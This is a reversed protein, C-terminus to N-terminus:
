EEIEPNAAMIAEAVQWLGPLFQEVQAGRQRLDAFSLIGLDGLLQRYAAGFREGLEPPADHYLVNMCRSYTAVIWFVAERHLGREILERSGDIAIPRGLESIDAAFAFPTKILTKAVDFVEGLADLHKEVRQRDMGACGLLELLAIYFDPQRYDVLLQRVAAYRRRVTPNRLGAVLLVHTTVGTAFLWAVAGDHFPAAEDLGRLNHLIKGSAHECRKRVWRRRAYEAAVAQQLPALRGTPDAIISPTRFSGALHSVGLVDGASRLQDRSIYSVDLVIHEFVLKGPKNPPEPDALVVMLDLDSTAALVADGALWNTSGHFFAGCFGPAKAAEALVWRRAVAKADKVLM